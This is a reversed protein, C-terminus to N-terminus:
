KQGGGFGGVRGMAWSGTGAGPGMLGQLSATALSTGPEGSGQGAMSWAPISGCRWWGQSTGPLHGIGRPASSTGGPQRSRTPTTSSGQMDSWVRGGWMPLGLEPKQNGM